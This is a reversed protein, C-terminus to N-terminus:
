LFTEKYLGIMAASMLSKTETKGDDSFAVCWLSHSGNQEQWPGGNAGAGRYYLRYKEGDYVLSGYACHEGEWPENCDLAINKRVPKHMECKINEIKDALEMDWLVERGNINYM